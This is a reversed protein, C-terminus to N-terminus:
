LILVTKPRGPIILHCSSHLGTDGIRSSDSVYKLARHSSHAVSIKIGTVTKMRKKSQRPKANYLEKMSAREHPDLEYLNKYREIDATPHVETFHSHLNYKWVADAGDRCLPCELPVNTCPNSATSKSAAAISLKAANPCRSQQPDVSKAGNKGKGKILRISCLNGVNLCFGCPNNSYKVAPDHLIHTGIHQVLKSPKSIPLPLSPCRPCRCEHRVAGM